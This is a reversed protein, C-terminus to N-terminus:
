EFVDFSFVINNIYKESSKLEISPFNQHNPADPYKQCEIAVGDNDNYVNGNKGEPCGSLWNGTYVIVGPQDSYVSLVRGSLESSLEAVKRMGVGTAAWCADYGKGYELAPFSARIRKGILTPERFDMPTGEVSRLEGSPILTSDTPLYHHANLMLNHDLINGNGEGKLNFYTHNTLNVITKSSTEAELKINLSNSEEIWSYTAKATIDGPYGDDGDPAFLTFVVSNGDIEGNWVRNAFGNDGGHNHNPGNNIPLNYEKGDMVFKGNAIRNAVRGPVKGFCPGDGIYYFLNDYGPVVDAIKGDRDPVCISVVGAGINCLSVSVGDQCDIKYLFVDEGSSTTGYKIENITM